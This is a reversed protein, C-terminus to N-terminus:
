NLIFVFIPPM